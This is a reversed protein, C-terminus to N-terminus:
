FFTLTHTGLAPDPDGHIFCYEHYFKRCTKCNYGNAFIGFLYMNCVDCKHPELEHGAIDDAVEDNPAYRAYKHSLHFKPALNVKELMADFTAKLQNAELEEKMCISFSKHVNADYDEEFVQISVVSEKRARLKAVNCEMAPTVDVSTLLAFTCGKHKEKQRKFKKKATSRTINFIWINKEFWITYRDRYFEETHMKLLLMGKFILPGNVTCFKDINLHKMPNKMLYLENAVYSTNFIDRIENKEEVDEKYCQIFQLIEHLCKKALRCSQHFRAQEKTLYKTNKFIRCGLNM